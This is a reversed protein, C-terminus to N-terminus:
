RYDPVALFRSGGRQTAGAEASEAGNRRFSFLRRAGDTVAAILDRDGPRELRFLFILGVVAFAINPLWSALDVSLTRQRALGTLTIFGVYYCFFALVIALIYSTSRGGKRTSIGLPIGVMALTLCAIPLTLRRDLEINSEIYEPKNKAAHHAFKWLDRTPMETYGKAKLEASPQAELIQDDHGSHTHIGTLVDKGIEHNSTNQLSLQIRNHPIDPVAIARDAVTIRPGEVQAKTGTPREDAPTIDAIFIHRWVALLGSQAVDEVYLVKNPFQEDFVRPQVDATVQAVLLRNAVRLNTRIALPTLWLSSLGAVLAGAFAFLMIPLVVSRSPVGGARMAVIEGDGAMRGLGVLIGVLVGFPVTLSFFPPLSLAFLKVVTEASASSRVLQQFLARSVQNQLFIVFTALATGLLASVSLERFVYRGLIRM